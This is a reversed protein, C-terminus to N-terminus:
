RRDRPRGAAVGGHGLGIARALGHLFQSIGRALDADVELLQSRYVELSSSSADQSGDAMLLPRIVFWTSLVALLVLLVWIM